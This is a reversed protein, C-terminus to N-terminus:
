SHAREAFDELARTLANAGAERGGRKICARLIGALAEVHPAELITQHNGPVFHVEVGEAAVARWGLTPDEFIRQREPSLERLFALDIDSARLLIIRGPYASVKYREVATARSSWGLALGRLMPIDFGPGLAEMGGLVELGRELQHDISLGRLADADLEVTRGQGRALHRVLDGIVAATDVEAAEDGASVPQDLIALLAVDEGSATLQRAMEVAVVGGFSHGALFYPGGPQRSRVANLYEAALEEITIRPAASQGAKGDMPRAQLGYLPQDAGLERALRYYYLVEGGIAHICFLPARDGLPQIPVLPSWLQLRGEEELGSVMVVERTGRGHQILQRLTDAYAAALREMTERRHVRSGYTLTMRLRGETVIGDIALLYARHARPSRGPGASVTSARFLSLQDLTGDVQGLYNFLIEASPAKALFPAKGLYRLLGHGLGRGPVSRLRDKASVLAADPGADGAELVAPYLSTFWGVTLSLDLDDFLPERGHGELDLRLRPSGIWGALARGLSSLLADDIRNHYVSPLTQLLDATEETSLEFSVTAEDGVLNGGSPFDVPLRPVPVGAIERWHELEDAVADSGAHAALRRAWEQFSTTKPPFGPRQGRAAQRYARELDELLVRWSVGDVVLHHSVWLLRSPQGAGAEFLCLRTLPGASLNFGAQLAAAAPALAQVRRAAPLASLDVLHFPVVPEAPANEQRWDGARSAFRLRLADHHEVIAAMARELAAPALPERTELLLAQNFHQPDAFGQEFFWRQIPTLPVEGVVPGQEARVTGATGATELVAHRALAAVTQHEFIQRMTFSLGAQRARAVIQVSLISDGGLEFFNDNVGVRPVRLTQAWIEALIQEERTRPAAYGSVAALPRPAPLAKRDVKGTPTVPLEALIVFANPVMAEPLRERLERRLRDADLNGAVWAVLRDERPMVVVQRVGPLASLAAEVDGLEIRLGRIKVQHDIRGLFHITGDARQRVLDGTSYLRAGPKAACPDPVFREATLDPRGLYGRALGAGGLCLEGPQGPAMPQGWRDLIRVWLNDVPRGLPAVAEKMGPRCPHFTAQITCETPGYLNCLEIGPLLDFVRECLAVPLAEGGCFLRQLPLDRLDEDLFPGLVSPVLQLVTVGRERLERVMTAPERHAGPPALVLRAGALLPLFIEWIAADFVFPTKQLVADDEGLPFRCQMWLMHNAIAGHSVMVGKPRGTSGSTYIAYALHDPRVAVELPGSDAALEREAVALDLIQVTGASLLDVPAGPGAILLAPRADDLVAALRAAPYAPDLPLWAAGAKWVAVLIVVLEPSRECCVAVRDDIRVGRRWLLRALGEARTELEGATLTRSGQEVAVRGPMRAAQEAILLHLLPPVGHEVGTDNWERLVQQLEAGGLLPLGAVLRDPEGLAAALLRELQLILRDVTAADYLDTAYEVTGLLGGGQESLSLTLDFKATTAEVDVPRLRLDEIELSAVPANQLAFMAQFLPTHALSREPALEEVLRDFPLDQHVQAALATERVRGLLEAFSPECSLNGRLVLTNVFFGILDEIEMWNRGAVPSGVVLDSHGSHRSLLVIFGALLVMFPTVGERRGLAQVRRTLEASFRVPRVAGRFSQVAPRPRDTPLELVAPLGALQGRWYAIEGELVEGQLWSRQWVAFDAYQVPLEPLPSLRGEGYATYLATVERVLIGLSWGDGVIHHMTVLAMHDEPGIRLLSARFLPGQSLDFPRRAEEATLALALAERPAKPLASLDVVPLLFPGPPRVVQVPEGDAATFVTRLAEHRRVIEGLSCALAMTDLPGSARLALPLNYLPSDPELQDILWLRQQAFSLPLPGTWPVPMIPPAAAAGGRLAAEIRAALGAVTPEEFLDRLPLEVGFVRRVRSMVRTALLSHGGLAFFSEKVGVRELGLIEAWIGELVEEMPTRSALHGELPGQWQPTPLSQRDVKGNPTLPLAELMVFASPVMYEPLRDRLTERLTEAAVEGVVYAVLQRNTPLAERAVVVAERVGAIEGLVAEIEGLEIRFGRVKVQHDIRGLFELKGDSRWRALDGTRYLRAGPTRSFPDPIFKEATLSPRGWYGLALGAGGIALEGPVGIAAPQLWHDLLFTETNAIPRGISPLFPWAAPDDALVLETVVHSESPGYQNRLPCGSLRSFLSALQPTIQLREGATVVERLSLPLERGEEGTLYEALQQLVVFPAFLREVSQEVLYRALRESDRRAEEPAIILTGGACWTAFMEQLSVDFSPSALQLTAAAATRPSTAIQWSVLNSLTRHPLVIGKPRGTSGSTYIVYAPSGEEIPVQPAVPARAEVEASVEDVLVARVPRGAVAPLLREQILLLRVGSDDLLFDLRERPYSPDIPLYAGGAKLAALVAMGLEPGREMFVGVPDGPLVGISLLHNALRDARANLEAYTWSGGPWVIARREPTRASQMGVREHVTLPELLVATDNWERLLQARVAEGLLPLDSLRAEPHEIAASLLTEFHALLRAMTADDFLDTNYELAGSVSAPGEELSLVLDFKATTGSLRLGEMELEHVRMEERPANQLVMLIQFIPSYALSREPALEEVLKEFPVEQHMYAALSVERVRALAEEFGPDGSLDVRLVLTNVFFGILPELEEYKRAAVPSGISLDERGTLRALLMSFGALLSMFLTAGKRRGIARLRQVVGAPLEVYRCAGRFTQVSPRPRDAPLELVPPSGALQGRWYALERDLVEGQLWRRQWVAYDGYQVPLEPLSSPRGAAFAPYLAMLERVLVGMSWGDSVIHHVVLVMVHERPALRILSGRWLPGQSLDFPRGSEEAVLELMRRERAGEPLSSLDVTALRFEAPPLVIQVPDGHTSAFVTRLAEHRRQIESLSRALAGGQLPGLVRLAVPMNYLPSGPALQDIFWLRQQAFSLPLLGERKEVPRIRAMGISRQKEQLQAIVSALRDGALEQGTAIGGANSRQEVWRLMEDAISAALAALTPAQFLTRIPLDVGLVERIRAVLRIGQLSHGGLEFFDDNVGIEEVRLLDSWIGALLEEIPTRPALYDGRREAGDVPQPLARRDVKGNPSIPMSTLNVFTAPVMFEPLSHRLFARLEATEVTASGVPVMYAALRQDGPRDERLLVASELIQPHCALAAEIEGLEIRFGRIKVQHDIRGLFELYGARTWRVLDGTRYLRAGPEVAFPDPVFREATLAPMRLYGRTVGSGGVLLEGAVGIPVPRLQPDVVYLRSNGIPRGIPVRHPEQRPACVWRTTDISIETPGYQNDLPAPLRALVRDRLEPTLAEGGSFVQRLSTCTEVGEEGLFAALMSPVFHVFTVRHERLTRVLYASDGQRGPEALVLRAGASLPAFCEWVSFDFSFSAKQLVADSPSLQYIQQAWRLRNVVGRHPVMVGKPRGTSGSTYIVYALHDPTVEVGLDGEPEEGKEGADWRGDLLVVSRGAAPVRPLLHEQILLVRAGSDDLMFALREAPYAPDLPLWAGGAELVALMGAVMAPSREAALGVIVDPGVGLERLHRALRRASGALRRYTWREDGLEVAVAEPTRAAQAAVHQHLCGEALGAIWTDNWERLIQWREAAALLPLEPVSLEPASLAAALLREFGAVLRDVTTGDFLDTAYEVGGTLGGDHEELTLTLDFKATNGATGLPRLALGPIELSGTPANQLAFMVQFLPTHALTRQPTLAQVLREFPVDQHAYAALTIERVRGLLERFSPEGSLDGRLVLTNVFFGILNEVEQWNRGAVPTGVALDDQGAHRALLALFGSLLVMFMTAGERQALAEAQRALGGPLFLPRTAGRYSQTAPRPRDAPLELLPPLGTLQRRWFSLENELLESHLWSHQWAAFDGYQVPLDALPSPRGQAFATYLAVVERVLIAMSWGDSTIHHMTLVAAHVMPNGPGALCLLLGRLLPGRALDFARAAEEGALRLATAERATEPLESLDVVPLEFPAAPQVLQVPVDARVGFITRLAEHRRVIEGLALALARRELPGEIRLAVPINYLARGPELQDLFWLREQAFSLPAHGTEARRPIRPEQRGHGQKQRLAQLLLARKAPSLSRLREERLDVSM